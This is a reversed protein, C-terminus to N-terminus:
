SHTKVNEIFLKTADEVNKEYPHREPDELWVFLFTNTISELILAMYYPDLMKKFIGKKTGSEFLSAVKRLFKEYLARVEIDLGAKIDFSAGRTESFYIRLQPINNMFLMGKAAIYAQIREAEDGPSDLAKGLSDEFELALDMVLARYLDEKDKFFNYLTGISFEAEEAIRHMSINHYGHKSFLQLAVDLIRRRHYLKKRERLPLEKQNMRVEKWM